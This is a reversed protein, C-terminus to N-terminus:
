GKVGGVTLGTKFYRQIFPFVVIMPVIALIILAITIPSM